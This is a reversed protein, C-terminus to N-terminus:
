ILSNLKDPSIYIGSRPLEIMKKRGEALMKGLVEKFDSRSNANLQESASFLQKSPLMKHINSGIAKDIM